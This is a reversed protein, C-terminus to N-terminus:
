FYFEKFYIKEPDLLVCISVVMVKLSNENNQPFDFSKGRLLIDIKIYIPFNLLLFSMSESFKRLSFM